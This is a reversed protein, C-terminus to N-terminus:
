GDVQDEEADVSDIGGCCTQYVYERVAGASDVFDLVQWRVSDWGFTAM